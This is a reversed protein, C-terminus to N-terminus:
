VQSSEGPRAWIGCVDGLLLLPRLNTLTAGDAFVDKTAEEALAKQAGQQSDFTVIAAIHYPSTTLGLASTFKVIQFKEVGASEWAKAALAIHGSVYHEVDFRGENEIATEYLVTIVSKTPHM